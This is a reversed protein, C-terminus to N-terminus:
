TQNLRIIEYIEYRKKVLKEKSDSILTPRIFGIDTTEHADDIDKTLKKIEQINEKVIVQKEKPLEKLKNEFFRIEDKFKTSDSLRPLM